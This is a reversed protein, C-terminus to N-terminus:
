RIKIEQHPDMNASPLRLSFDSSVNAVIRSLGRREQLAGQERSRDCTYRAGAMGRAPVVRGLRHRGSQYQHLRRVFSWRDRRLIGVDPQRFPGPSIGPLCCGRRGNRDGALPRWEAAQEDARRLTGRFADTGHCLRICAAPRDLRRVSSQLRAAGARHAPPWMPHTGTTAGHTAAFITRAGVGANGEALEDLRSM